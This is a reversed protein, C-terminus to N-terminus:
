NLPSSKCIKIMRMIEASEELTVLPKINNEICKFFHKMQYIFMDNYNSEIKYSKIGKEINLKSSIKNNM